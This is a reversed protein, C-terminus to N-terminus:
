LIAIHQCDAGEEVCGNGLGVLALPHTHSHKAQRLRYSPIDQRFEGLIAIRCPQYALINCIADFQVRAWIQVEVGLAPVCAM